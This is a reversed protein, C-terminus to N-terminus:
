RRKRTKRAPAHQQQHRSWWLWGFFGAFIASGVALMWGYALNGFIVVALVLPVLLLFLQWYARDPRVPRRRPTRTRSKAMPNCDPGVKYCLWAAMGLREPRPRM